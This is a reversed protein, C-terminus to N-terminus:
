NGRKVVRQSEVIRSLEGLPDQSFVVSRGVIEFDAGAKLASGPAAGQFGIGPSLILAEGLRERARKIMDPKTAGVVVGTLRLSGAYDLLDQFHHDILSARCSMSVLGYLDIDTRPPKSICQPFLHIIAGDFGMSEILMIEELTVDEIDALKLDALFYLEGKFAQALEGIEEPGVRLFAPLGIKVGALMNSLKELLRYTESLFDKYKPFDLALIVWSQKREGFNVLKGPM